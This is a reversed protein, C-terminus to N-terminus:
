SVYKKTPSSPNWTQFTNYKRQESNVLNHAQLDIGEYIRRTGDLLLHSQSYMDESINTSDHIIPVRNKDYVGQQKRGNYPPPQSTFQDGEELRSDNPIAFKSSTVMHQCSIENRQSHELSDDM